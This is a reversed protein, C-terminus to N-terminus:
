AGGDALRCGDALYIEVQGPDVRLEAGAADVLVLPEGERVPMTAAIAREVRGVAQTLDEFAQIATARQATDAPDIVGDALVGAVYEAWAQAASTFLHPLEEAAAAIDFRQRQFGHALWYDADAEAVQIARGSQDFLMVLPPANVEAEIRADHQITSEPM